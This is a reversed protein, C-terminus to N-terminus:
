PAASQQKQIADDLVAAFYQEVSQNKAAALKQLSRLQEASVTSKAVIDCTGPMKLWDPQLKAVDAAPVGFAKLIGAAMMENGLGNPHVGDATLVNGKIPAEQALAALEAHEDANLDTIPLKRETALSRLFDNYAVLKQNNANDDEGIMTSTLIVVKIGAAQAQDVISTINTKYDDLPVGNVGHWVDNVGCSLTMWQPKKSLVDKDLRALMDKSTNGSVGAPIIEIKVGEKELGDAVLHLYGGPIRNGNATISDGLFAVKDGSQPLIGPVPAADANTFSALALVAALGLFAGYSRSFTSSHM